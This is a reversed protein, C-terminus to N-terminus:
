FHIYIVIILVAICLLLHENEGSNMLEDRRIGIIDIQM